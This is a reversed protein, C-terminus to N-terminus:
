FRLQVFHFVRASKLTAEPHELLGRFNFLIINSLAKKKKKGSLVFGLELVFKLGVGHEGHWSSLRKM